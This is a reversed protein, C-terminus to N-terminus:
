SPSDSLNKGIYDDFAGEERNNTINLFCQMLKVFDRANNETIKNSNGVIEYNVFASFSQIFNSFM